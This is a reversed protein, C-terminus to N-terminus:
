PLAAAPPGLSATSQLGPPEVNSCLYVPLFLQPALCVACGPAGTCSFLAEFRQNFVGMPTSAAAPSVGLRVPSNMPSVWLPRSQACVWGGPILVLLAWNSQSCHPFHSLVPLSCFLHWQERESGEGVFLMVACGPANGQGPSYKLSWGKCMVPASLCFFIAWIFSCILAGSFVLHRLALWGLEKYQNSACNLVSTIRFSM